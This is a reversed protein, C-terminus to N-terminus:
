VATMIAKTELYAIIGDPGHERGWGSQKFGGFPVAYNLVQACNIWATGADIEHALRNATGIDRSWIYSALGYPTDNALTIVEDLSEFSAASIVPGFIEERMVRMHPQAGAFVTPQIFFGPGEIQEGGAVLTAGEDRGAAVIAKVRALHKASILPGMETAPDLPSGVKMRAAFDALGAVVDDYVRRDAYLRSGATCIQGSHFFIARAAAPIALDLDADACIIFPSKGGLELTLRKLNGAASTLLSKGVATSGTFSIKDVDPHEGLRAGIVAGPGCVINIVGAPIGVEIMLEGLRLVSLPTEDAPKLIVSCGAALAPALKWAGIGLPSNWPVILGVVGVPQLRTRNSVGTGWFSFDASRGHIKTCWGAYYRFCEAVNAVVLPMMAMLGGSNLAELTALEETNAEILDALRWLIRGREDGSLARWRKDAFSARAAAVAADIDDVGGSAVQALRQGTAPDLVDDLAGSKAWCWEGDILFKGTRDLYRKVEGEPVTESLSM